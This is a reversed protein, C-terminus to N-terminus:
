TTQDFVVKPRLRKATPPFLLVAKTDPILTSLIFINAKATEPVRAPNDPKRREEYIPATVVVKPFTYWISEIAAATM